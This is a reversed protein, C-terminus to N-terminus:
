FMLELKSKKYLNETGMWIDSIGNLVYITLTKFVCETFICNCLM